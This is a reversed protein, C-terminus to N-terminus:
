PGPPSITIGLQAIVTVTATGTVSNDAQSTATVTERYCSKACFCATYLGTTDITGCQAGSCGTGSVGWNVSQDALGTITAASLGSVAFRARSNVIFDSVRTCTPDSHRQSGDAIPLFSADVETSDRGGSLAWAL